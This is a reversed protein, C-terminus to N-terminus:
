LVTYWIYNARSNGSGPFTAGAVLDVGAPLLVNSVTDILDSKSTTLGDWGCFVKQAGDNIAIFCGSDIDGSASARHIMIGGTNAAAAVVTDPSADFNDYYSAGSLDIMGAGSLAAILAAIGSDAADIAVDLVNNPSNANQVSVNGAFNARNDTVGGASVAFTVNAANGATERFQLSTIAGIEDPMRFKIGARVTSEDGDNISMVLEGSLGIITVEKGTKVFRVTQLASFTITNEQYTPVKPQLIAM